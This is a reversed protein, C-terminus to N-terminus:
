HRHPYVYYEAGVDSTAEGPGHTYGFASPPPPPLPLLSSPPYRMMTMTQHRLEILEKKKKELEIEITLRNIEKQYDSVNDRTKERSRSRYSKRDRDRDSTRGRDRDSTRDRDRDSTRERYRDSTRDRNSDSTHDRILSKKRLYSQYNHVSKIIEFFIDNLMTDINNMYLYRKYWREIQEDHIFKCQYDDNNRCSSRKNCIGYSIKNYYDEIHYSFHFRKCGAITCDIMKKSLDINPIYYCRNNIITNIIFDEKEKLTLLPEGM